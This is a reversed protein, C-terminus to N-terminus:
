QWGWEREAHRYRKALAHPLIVSGWGAALDQQHMVGVAQLHHRLVELQTGPFLTRRDKGGKGNRVTLEWREFDLDQVSLRLAGMLRLGSGYLPRKKARARVVGELELDRELQERYLFLLASLVQNQTSASVQSEVALHTLFAKVENSGM